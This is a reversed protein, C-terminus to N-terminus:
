GFTVIFGILAGLSGYKTWEYYSVTNSFLVFLSLFTLSLCGSIMILTRRPFHEIIFSGLNLNIQTKANSHKSFMYRRADFFEGIVCAITYAIFILLSSIEAIALDIGIQELM